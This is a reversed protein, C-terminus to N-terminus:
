RWRILRRDDGCSILSEGVWKVKNVSHSHGGSKADLKQLVSFSDYDWTKISKDRSCTVFHTGTDNFSIGYVAYNHAPIAKLKEGTEVNWKRLYGDKGGSVLINKETKSFALSNVGDQHAYFHTLENFFETEFVRIVGDQGGVALKSEDNNLTIARIKGCNLPTFFELKWNETNWLALNGDADGTLLYNKYKFSLQSFVASKHQKFFKIEKRSEVDIIHLDGNNLGLSILNANVLAISYVPFDAKVTFPEQLGTDLNWRVVLSDAGATYVIEDNIGIIDYIGMSHQRIERNKAFQM